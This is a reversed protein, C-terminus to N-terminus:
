GVNADSDRIEIKEFNSNIVPVVLGSIITFTILCLGALSPLPTIQLAELAKADMAYAWILLAFGFMLGQVKYAPNRESAAAVKAFLFCGFLCIVVSAVAVMGDATITDKTKDFPEDILSNIFIFAAVIEAPIYNQVRELYGQYESTDSKANPTDFKNVLLDLPSGKQINPLDRPRLMNKATM